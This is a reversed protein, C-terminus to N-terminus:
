KSVKKVWMWLIADNLTYMYRYILICVYKYLIIYISNYMIYMYIYYRIMYM